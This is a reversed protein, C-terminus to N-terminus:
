IVKNLWKIFDIYTQKPLEKYFQKKNTPMKCMRIMQETHVLLLTAADKTITSEALHFFSVTWFHVAQTDCVLWFNNHFFYTYDGHEITFFDFRYYSDWLTQWDICGELHSPIETCNVETEVYEAFEAKPNYEDTQYWLADSLQEATTIGYDDLKEIFSEYDHEDFGDCVRDNIEDALLQKEEDLNDYWVEFSDTSRPLITATM